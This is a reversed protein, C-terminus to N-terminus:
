DNLNGGTAEDRDIDEQISPPYENIFVLIGYSDLSKLFDILDQNCKGFYNVWEKAFGKGLLSVKHAALTAIIKSQDVDNRVWLDLRSSYEM